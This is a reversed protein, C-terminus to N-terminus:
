RSVRGSTSAARIPTVPTESPPMCEHSSAATSRRTAAAAGMIPTCTHMGFPRVFTERTESVEYIRLSMRSRLSCLDIDDTFLASQAGNLSSIRRSM